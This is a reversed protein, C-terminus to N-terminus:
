YQVLPALGGMDFEGNIATEAAQNLKFKV